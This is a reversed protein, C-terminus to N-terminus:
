RRWGGLDFRSHELLWRGATALGHAASEATAAGVLETLTLHGGGPAGRGAQSTVEDDAGSVIHALNALSDGEFYSTHHALLREVRLEGGGAAFRHAGFADDAPDHGLPGLGGRDGAGLLTVPDDDRAGVWVDADTLQGATAAPVGPSGILVADDVPAGDLLAYGLTTSGYSHGIATLHAREGQDSARLGAVFDTFRAGGEHAKGTLAVGGFDVQGLPDLPDVPNGSPADYDLWYISAVSGRRDDLAALHLDYTKALNAPTSSTDSTLGPVNASVRDATDPDGFSIVVGGDGSHRTPQYGILETLARGTEPDILPAYDDLAERVAAANPVLGADHALAARNAEDRDTVPLGEANGVLGPHETTLAEQEDRSLRRWWGALAEPASLLGRLEGSLRGVDPRDRGVAVGSLATVIEAEAAAYARRWAEIRGRLEDDRAADGQAAEVQACAAVLELRWRRLRVLRDEFRDAAAVVRDLVAELVDLRRAFWTAAHAHADAAEGAWGPAAISAAWAQVDKVSVTVGRLDVALSQAGLPTSDMPPPRLVQSM